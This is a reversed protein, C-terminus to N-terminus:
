FNVQFRVVGVKNNVPMGGAPFRVRSDTYGAMIRYNQSLYWNAGLTMARGEGRRVTGNDLDLRSYRAAVEIASNRRGFDPGGIVGGKETYRYRGGTILWSAQITQGSFSADALTNRDVKAWTSIGLIQVSGLTGGVEANYVSLKDVNGLTGSSLLTPALASGSDGSFRATELASFDRKEAGLAFHLLKGRSNFPALSARGAFGDGREISRGNENALPDTFYGFSASWNKGNASVAGGLGYGPTLGSALSREVFPTTNSSQMDEMSFPVIFNGGKIEINKVPEVSAWLNRWGKSGGAFERSASFRVIDGIKASVELRARRFDVDSLGTRGTAPDDYTAADIHIRGGLNLELVGEKLTIGKEDATMGDAGKEAAAAPSSVSALLVCMGFVSKM